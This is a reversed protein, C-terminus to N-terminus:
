RDVYRPGQGGEPLEWRIFPSECAKCHICNQANIHLKKKQDITVIEYVGAPCFRTLPVLTQTDSVKYPDKLKLHCPQNEAHHTNTLRVSSERSFVWQDDM